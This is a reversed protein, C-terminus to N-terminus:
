FRTETHLLAGQKVGIRRRIEKKGKGVLTVLRGLYDFQKVAM